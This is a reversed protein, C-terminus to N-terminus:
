KHAKAETVFRDREEESKFYVDAFPVDERYLEAMALTPDPDVDDVTTVTDEIHVGLGGTSRDYLTITAGRDSEFTEVKVSQSKAM